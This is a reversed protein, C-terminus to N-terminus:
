VFIFFNLIVLNSKLFTKSFIHAYLWLFYFKGKPSIKKGVNIPATGVAAPGLRLMWLLYLLVYMCLLIGTLWLCASFWAAEKHICTHKQVHMQLGSTVM